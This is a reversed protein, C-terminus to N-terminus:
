GAEDRESWEFLALIKVKSGLETLEGHIVQSAIEVV